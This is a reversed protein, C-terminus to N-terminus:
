IKKVQSLGLFWFTRPHAPWDEREDIGTETIDALIKFLGGAAFMYCFWEFQMNMGRGEGNVAWQESNVAWQQGNVTSQRSGM